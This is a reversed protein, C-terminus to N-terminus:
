EIPDGSLSTRPPEAAEGPQAYPDAPQQQGYAPPSGYPQASAGPQSYGQPPYGPQAGPPAYGPQQYGPQPGQPPYGSQPMQPPYGPQPPYGSQPPPFTNQPTGPPPPWAGQPPPQGAYWANQQAGAAQLSRFEGAAQLGVFLRYLVYAHFVAPIYDTFVAFLIGDLLYFIMGVIFPWRLGKKAQMAFLAWIGAVLLGCVFAVAKGTTGFSQGAGDIVECLALGIIFHIKAGIMGVVANVLSFLAIANFWSAGSRTRALASAMQPSPGINNM